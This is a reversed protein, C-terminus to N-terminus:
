SQDEQIGSKLMLQEIVNAAALLNLRRQSLAGIRYRDLRDPAAEESADSYLREATERLMTVCWQPSERQRRQLTRACGAPGHPLAQECYYCQQTNNM